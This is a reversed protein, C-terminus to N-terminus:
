KELAIKAKTFISFCKTFHQLLKHVSWPDNWHGVNVKLMIQANVNNITNLHGFDFVIHNLEFIWSHGLFTHMMKTLPEIGICFHHVNILPM